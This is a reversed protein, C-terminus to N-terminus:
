AKPTAYIYANVGIVVRQGNIEAPTSMNGHTSAVSLTKGSASPTPPTLPMKILLCKNEQDMVVAIGSTGCELWEQVNKTAM